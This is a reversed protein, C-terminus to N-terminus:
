SVPALTNCFLLKQLCRELARLRRDLLRFILTAQTGSRKELKFLAAGFREYRKPVMTAHSHIKTNRFLKIPPKLLQSGLFM